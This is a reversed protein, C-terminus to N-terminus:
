RMREIAERSRSRVTQDWDEKMTHKLKPIAETARMRGLALAACGRVYAHDDELAKMLLSISERHQVVGLSSAAIGRMLHQKDGPSRKFTAMFVEAMDQAIHELGALQYQNLEILETALAFRKGPAQERSFKRTLMARRSRRRQTLWIKRIAVWLSLTIAVILFLVPVVEDIFFDQTDFDLHHWMWAGGVVVALLALATIPTSQGRQAHHPSAPVGRTMVRGPALLATIPTAQGRQAHHPSAPIGRTM